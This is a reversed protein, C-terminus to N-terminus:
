QNRIKKSTTPTTNQSTKQDRINNIPGWVYLYCSKVMILNVVLAIVLGFCSQALSFTFPEDYNFYIPCFFIM